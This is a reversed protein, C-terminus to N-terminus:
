SDTRWCAYVEIGKAIGVARVTETHATTAQDSAPLQIVKWGNTAMDTGVTRIGCTVPTNTPATLHWTVSATNDGTTSEYAIWEIGASRDTANVWGIWAAFLALLTVGVSIVFVRDRPRSTGYRASLTTSDTM